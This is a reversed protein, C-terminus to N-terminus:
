FAYKMSLSVWVEDDRNVSDEMSAQYYLGPTFSLNNSIDFNTSVGLVAHSWDHDAALVGDNYVMNASLHFTQEPTEPMIGPVTLDYDLGVIHLWGGIGGSGAGTTKDVSAFTRNLGSGSESPWMCVVTYSPVVGAPCINPWSFSAFVEQMDFAKKPSDPFNYYTWGVNYGTAWTEQEDFINHYYLTYDWRELNQFGVESGPVEQLLGGLRGSGAGIASTSVIKFGFGTDWLDLGIGTQIAGRDDHFWDFGRWIYSSLYTVDLTVGLKEEEARVFGATSLLIVAILLIGKRM